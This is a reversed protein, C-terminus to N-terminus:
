KVINKLWKGIDSEQAVLSYEIPRKSGTWKIMGEIELIGFAMRIKYDEPRGKFPRNEALNRQELMSFVVDVSVVDSIQYAELITNIIAEFHDIPCYHKYPEEIRAEAVISQGSVYWKFYKSGSKRKKTLTLTKEMTISMTPVEIIEDLESAQYLLQSIQRFINGIDHINLALIYRGTEFEIIGNIFPLRLLKIIYDIDVPAIELEEIKERGAISDFTFYGLRDQLAQMEEIIIRFQELLDRRSHNQSILDNFQTTVEGKGSFLDKIEILTFPFNAHSDVLQILNDTTLLSVKYQEARTQLNGGSFSPGVVVIYDAKNKIKHDSLSIWDIQRDIIKGSKSTKGDITVKFSEKGINATLLIDTDGSGGILDGSFGLYVFADRVAKEFESPSDSMFQTKRLKSIISDPTKIIERDQKQTEGISEEWERLGFIGRGSKIFRSHKGLENIDRYIEAAMTREPTKGETEIMGGVLAIQTLESANLPRSKSKLIEYAADILRM